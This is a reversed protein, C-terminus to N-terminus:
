INKKAQFFFPELPLLQIPLFFWRNEHIKNHVMLTMLTPNISIMLTFLRNESSHPPRIIHDPRNSYRNLNTDMDPLYTKGMWRGELHLNNTVPSYIICILHFYLTKSWLWFGYKRRGYFDCFFRAFCLFSFYISLCINRNGKHFNPVSFELM